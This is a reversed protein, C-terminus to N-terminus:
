RRGKKRESRKEEKQAEYEDLIFDVADEAAEKLIGAITKNQPIVDSYWEGDKGKKSPFSFFDNGGKSHVIGVKVAVIDKFVVQGYGITGEKDGTVYTVQTKVQGEIWDSEYLMWDPKKTEETKKERSM